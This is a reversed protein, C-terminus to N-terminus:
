RKRKLMAQIEDFGEIARKQIVALADQNARSAAETLERINGIAKEFSSKALELRKEAAARADGEQMMDRSAQAAEALASQLIEVERQLVKQSGELWVKNAQGLAAWNKQQAAMLEQWDVEPFKLEGLVRSLDAFDFAPKREPM